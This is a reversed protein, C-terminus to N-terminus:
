IIYFICCKSIATLFAYSEHLILRKNTMIVSIHINLIELHKKLLWFYYIILIRSIIIWWLFLCVVIELRGIFDVESIVIKSTAWYLRLNSVLISPWSQYTHNGLILSKVCNVLNRLYVLIITWYHSIVLLVWSCVWFHWLLM